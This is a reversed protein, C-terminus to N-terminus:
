EELNKVKLIIEQMGYQQQEQSYRLQTELKSIQSVEADRAKFQNEKM